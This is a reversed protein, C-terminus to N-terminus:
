HMITTRRFSVCAKHLIFAYKLNANVWFVPSKVHNKFSQPLLTPGQIDSTSNAEIILSNENTMSPCVNGLWM